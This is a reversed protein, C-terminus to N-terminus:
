SFTSFQPLLAICCYACFIGLSMLSIKLLCHQGLHQTDAAQRHILLPLCELLLGLSPPRQTVSNLLPVFCLCIFERSKISKKWRLLRPGQHKHTKDALECLSQSMCGHAPGFRSREKDEQSGDCINEWPPSCGTPKPVSMGEALSCDRSENLVPKM